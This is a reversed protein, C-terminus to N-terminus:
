ISNIADIFREFKLRKILPRNGNWLVFPADRNDEVMRRLKNEGIRFYQAAEEITLLYQDAITISMDTNEKM